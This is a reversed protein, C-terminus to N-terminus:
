NETVNLTVQGQDKVYNRLEMRLSNVDEQIESFQTKLNELQVVDDKCSSVEQKINEVATSLRQVHGSLASVQKNEGNDGARSELNMRGFRKELEEVRRSTFVIADGLSMPGKRVASFEAM